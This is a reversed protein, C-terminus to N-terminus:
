KSENSRIKKDKLWFNFILFQFLFYNNSDAKVMAKSLVRNPFIYNPHSMPFNVNGLKAHARKDQISTTHTANNSFGINKILNQKPVVYLYSNLKLM